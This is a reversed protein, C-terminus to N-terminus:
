LIAFSIINSDDNKLETEALFASMAFAVAGDIKANGSRKVLKRNDAHDRTVVANSLCYGLIPNNNHTVKKEYILNELAGVYEEFSIFGQRLKEVEASYGVNNFTRQIENWRYADVGIKLVNFNKLIKIIQEGFIEWDHTKGPTLMLYGQAYWHKLPAKLRLENEDISEKASWFYALTKLSGDKAKVIVNMSSLDYAGLSLDIGVVANCGHLDEEKFDEYIDKWVQPQIFNEDVSIKQNLLFNRFYFEKSPIQKAQKAQEKMYSLSLFSGLAPNAKKWVKPNYYIDKEEIPVHYYICYVSKDENDQYKEVLQNFWYTDSAGITSINIILGDDHAGQSSTMAEYFRADEKMNAGEDHLYVWASKGLASGSDSALAQFEVGNSENILMKKSDLIKIRKTLEPSFLIIKKMLNYIIAAQNRDKAGSFIQSNPKAIGKISMLALLIIASTTTKANKRGLSCIAMKVVRKGKETKFVEKIFDKQWKILKIPQGVKDGEPVKLNSAFKIIKNAMDYSYM